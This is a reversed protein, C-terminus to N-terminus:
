ICDESQCPRNYWCVNQFKHLLPLDSVAFILLFDPALYDPGPLYIPHNQERYRSFYTCVFLTPCPYRM